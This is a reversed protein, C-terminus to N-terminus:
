GPQQVRPLSGPQDPRAPHAPWPAPAARARRRLSAPDRPRRVRLATRAALRHRGRPDGSGRHHAADSRGRRLVVLLSRGMSAVVPRVDSASCLRQEFGRPPPHIRLHRDRTGCRRLGGCRNAKAIIIAGAQRLRRVQFADQGPRFHELVPTGATTPMEATDINDKVVLPIGHLPGRSGSEAREADLAAAEARARPNITILASLEPGADDCAETRALFFDVLGVSTIRGNRMARQLEAITADM